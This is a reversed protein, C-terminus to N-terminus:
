APGDANQLCQLSWQHRALGDTVHLTTQGCPSRAQRRGPEATAPFVACARCSVDQLVRSGPLDSHPRYSEARGGAAGAVVGPHCSVHQHSPPVRRVHDGM